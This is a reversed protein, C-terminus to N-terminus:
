AVAVDNQKLRLKQQICRCMDGVNNFNLMEDIEFCIGYHDEITTIVQIHNLSDWAEIDNNTTSETLVISNDEFIERFLNNVESILQQLEM